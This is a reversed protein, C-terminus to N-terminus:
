KPIPHLVVQPEPASFAAGSTPRGSKIIKRIDDKTLAAKYYVVDNMEGQFISKAPFFRAGYGIRVDYDDFDNVASFILDSDNVGDIFLTARNPVTFAKVSLAAHHWKNDNVRIKSSQKHKGLQVKIVGDEIYIIKMYEDYGDFITGVKAIITGEHRTKIWFSITFDAFGFNLEKNNSADVPLYKDGPFYIRNVLLLGGVAKKEEKTPQIEVSLKAPGAGKTKSDQKIWDVQRDGKYGVLAWSGRYMPFLPYVAGINLLADGGYYTSHATNQTAIVVITDKYLGNIFKAMQKGANINAHTAFSKKRYPLGTAAHIAVINHGNKELSFEKGNVKISARALWCSHRLEAKKGGKPKKGEKPKKVKKSKKGRNPKKGGKPKKVKKPKKGRNPRRGGKSKPKKERNPKNRKPGPGPRGIRRGLRTFWGGFVERSPNTADVSGSQEEEENEGESEDGDDEDDEDDENGHYDHDNFDSFQPMAYRPKRRREEARKRVVPDECGESVVEIKIGKGEPKTTTPVTTPRPTTKLQVAAEPPYTSCKDSAMVIDDIAMDSQIGRDVVGEIVIVFNYLNVDQLSVKAEMWNQGQNGKLTWLLTKSREGAARTFVNLTGMTRGYMHYYFTLCSIESAKFPVSQLRATDGRRAPWSAELYLYHGKGSKYTHDFRPGTLITPTGRSRKRWELKGKVNKWFICESEFDCSYHAKPIPQTTTTAMTTTPVTTPLATTVVTIKAGSPVTDCNAISLSMDDIAIDSFYSRGIVGEIIIQFPFSKGPLPVKAPKWGQGQNGGLSWLLVDNEDVSNRQYVNLEGMTNGFMFYYFSLCSYESAEFNKSILRVIDGQTGPSSSEMYIYHGRRDGITHDVYPGTQPTPTNGSGRRWKIKTDMPKWAACKSEFDCFHDDHPLTTPSGTTPPETSTTPKKITTPPPPYTTQAETTTQPPPATTTTTTTTATTPPQTTKAATTTQPPATTTTTPPKTTQEKTTTQPPPPVITTKPPPPPVITTKPPPPPNTTVNEKTVPPVTTTIPLPPIESKPLPLNTKRTPPMPPTVILKKTTTTKETSPSTKPASSTTVVPANTTPPKAAVPPFVLCANDSIVIDDIAADSRFDKGITGSIIVKYTGSFVPLPLTGLFWSNGQDGFLSWVTTRIGEVELQVAISGITNGHMCYWFAFCRPRQSGQLAPSSIKAIDGESRPSSSEVFLYFGNENGKTHDFPPGTYPSPTRGKTRQWDFNDDNLNSWTCLGSEFDCSATCAFKNCERSEVAVGECYKGGSKPAPNNCSRSRIQIGGGCSVDCPLWESWAGYKGDIPDEKCKYLLAIQKIDTDSLGSRQGLKVPFTANVLEITDRGNKSFARPGYHMVSNYDYPSGLSDIEGKDYKKFQSSYGDLVNEYIVKVYKDRDPRSQEHWFGIAHMLEHIVVGKHGCGSGVSIQQKGGVRGILSWCGGGKLFHVYSPETTRPKIQICTKTNIDNIAAKIASLTQGGEEKMIEDAVTYYVTRNPWLDEVFGTAGFGLPRQGRFVIDKTRRHLLIDGEFVGGDDGTSDPKMLIGNEKNITIIGDLIAETDKTETAQAEYIRNCIVLVLVLAACHSTHLEM